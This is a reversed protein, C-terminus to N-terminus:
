RNNTNNMFEKFIDKHYHAETCNRMRVARVFEMKVGVWFTHGGRFRRHWIKVNKGGRKKKGSKENGAADPFAAAHSRSRHGGALTNLSPVTTMWRGHLLAAQRLHILLCLRPRWPAHATIVETNPRAWTPSCGGWLPLWVAQTQKWDFGSQIQTKNEDHGHWMCWVSM